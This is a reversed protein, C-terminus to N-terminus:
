GSVTPKRHLRLEAEVVFGRVDNICKTLVKYNKTVQKPDLPAKSVVHFEREKAVSYSVGLTTTLGQKATSGLETDDNGPEASPVTVSPDM